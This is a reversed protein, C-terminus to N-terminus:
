SQYNKKIIKELTNAFKAYYDKNSVKKARSKKKSISHWLREVLRNSQINIRYPIEDNEYLRKRTENWRFEKKTFDGEHMSYRELEFESSFQYARSKVDRPYYIRDDIIYIDSKMERRVDLPVHIRSKGFTQDRHHISIISQGSNRILELNYFVPIIPIEEHQMEVDLAYLM